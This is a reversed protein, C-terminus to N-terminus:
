REQSITDFRLTPAIPDVGNGTHGKCALSAAEELNCHILTTGRLYSEDRVVATTHPDPTKKIGLYGKLVIRKGM